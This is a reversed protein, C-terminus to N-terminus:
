VEGDGEGEGDAPPTDETTDTEEDSEEDTVEPAPTIDGEGNVQEGDENEWPRTAQTREEFTGQDEAISPERSLDPNTSKDAFPKEVKAAM